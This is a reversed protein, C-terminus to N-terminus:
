KSVLFGVTRWCVRVLLLLLAFISYAEMPWSEFVKQCDVVDSAQQVRYCSTRYLINPSYFSFNPIFYNTGGFHVWIDSFENYIRTFVVSQKAKQSSYYYRRKWRPKISFLSFVSGAISLEEVTCSSHSMM